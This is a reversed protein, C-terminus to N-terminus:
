TSLLTNGPENATMSVGVELVTIRDGTIFWLVVKPVTTQACLVEGSSEVSVKSDEDVYTQPCYGFTLAECFVCM